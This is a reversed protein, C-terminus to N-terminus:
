EDLHPRSYWEVVLRFHQMPIGGVHDNGASDRILNANQSRGDAEGTFSYLITESAKALEFVTGPGSAAKRPPATSISRRTKSWAGTGAPDLKFAVGSNSAGGQAATGYINGASDRILNAKPYGGDSGGTFSHLATLGTKDLKFVTGQNSAGGQSTAGFLSGAPDAILGGVPEAGDTCTLRHLVTYTQARAPLTGFAALIFMASALTQIAKTM